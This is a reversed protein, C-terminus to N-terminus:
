DPKAEPPRVKLRTWETNGQVDVRVLKSVGGNPDRMFVRSATPDSTVHFIDTSEALWPAKQFGNREGMLQNGERTIEYYVGPASEYRGVYEDLLKPDVTISVRKPYPITTGHVAILKWVNNLRTFTDSEVGEYDGGVGPPGHFVLRYVLLATDGLDRFKVDEYHFSYTGARALPVLESVAEVYNLTRGNSYVFVADTAVLQEYATKDGEFFAAFRRQALQVLENQRDTAATGTRSQAFTSGATILLMAICIVRPM